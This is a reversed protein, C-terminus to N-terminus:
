MGYILHAAYWFLAVATCVPRFHCALPILFYQLAHIICQVWVNNPLSHSVDTAADAAEVFVGSGHAGPLIFTAAIVAAFSSM